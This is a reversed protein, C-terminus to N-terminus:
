YSIGQLQRSLSLRNSMYNLGGYTLARGFSYSYPALVSSVGSGFNTLLQGAVNSLGFNDSASTTMVDEPSASGFTRAILPSNLARQMAAVSYFSPMSMVFGIYNSTPQYEINIITTVEFSAKADVGNVAWLLAGPNYFDKTDPGGADYASSGTSHYQYNTADSPSWHISCISQQNLPSDSSNEAVLLSADNITATFPPGIHDNGPYSACLYRGQNAAMATTSTVAFGASVIRYARSLTSFQTYGNTNTTVPTSYVGTTSNYGTYKTVGQFITPIWQIAVGFKTADSSSAVPTITFKDRFSCTASPYTIDDPIRVGHVSWPNALTALWGDRKLDLKPLNNTKPSNRNAKKQSQSNNKSSRKNQKNNM